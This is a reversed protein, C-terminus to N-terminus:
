GALKTTDGHNGGSERWEEDEDFVFPEDDDVADLPGAFPSGQHGRTVAGILASVGMLILIGPFFHGSWFLLALGVLWVFGQWGAWGKDNALSAPLEALGIVVLIWPFFSVGPLLFLLGLGILFLGGSVAEYAGKTGM